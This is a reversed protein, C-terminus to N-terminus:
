CGSLLELAIVVLQLISTIKPLPVLEIPCLDHKEVSRHLIRFQLQGSEGTILRISDFKLIFYKIDKFDQISWFGSHNKKQTGVAM